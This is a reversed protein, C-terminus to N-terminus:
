GHQVEIKKIYLPKLEHPHIKKNNDMAYRYVNEYSIQVEELINKNEKWNNFDNKPIYEYSSTLNMKQDFTAVYYGNKDAIVPTIDETYTHSLAMAELYSLAYLPLDKLYAFTKGITVGLRVGTFSGPGNIVIIGGIDDTTLHCEELLEELMPIIFMSHDLQTTKVAKKLVLGDQYLVLTIDLYHTDILLTIM